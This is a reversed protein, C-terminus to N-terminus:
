MGMGLEFTREVVPELEPIPETGPVLMMLSAPESNGTTTTNAILHDSDDIGGGGGMMPGMATSGRDYALTRLAFDGSSAPTVVLETREGPALLVRDVPRPQHLRGGDSGIVQFPHSDLALQYYRSTSANLVRWRERTGSRMDIQPQAVGNVLIEAGERGVMQEMQGSDAGSPDTLILLRETSEALAPQDDLSDTIIIAGALGAAVQAAVNGHAHPHYWFLGSRHGEPIDYVYTRSEGPSVTTFVNDSNGEPSVHLGHTHLNTPASLRNELNIVLQDGPRLYLTPGPSSDNYTLRDGASTATLTVELRGQSSAIVEPEIFSQQPGDNRTSAREPQPLTTSSSCGGVLVLGGVGAVKLFRRRSLRASHM